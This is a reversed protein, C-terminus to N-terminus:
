RGDTIGGFFSMQKNDVIAPEEPQTREHSAFGALWAADCDPCAYKSRLRGNHERVFISVLHAAERGCVQCRETTMREGRPISTIYEGM